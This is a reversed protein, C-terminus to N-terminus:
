YDTPKANKSVQPCVPRVWRIELAEFYGADEVLKAPHGM